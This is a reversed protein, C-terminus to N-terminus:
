MAPYALWGVIEYDAPDHTITLLGDTPLGHRERRCGFPLWTTALDWWGSRFFQQYKTIDCGKEKGTALASVIESREHQWSAVSEM